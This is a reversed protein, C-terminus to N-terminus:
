QLPYGRQALNDRDPPSLNTVPWRLRCLSLYVPIDFSDFLMMFVEESVLGLLTVHFRSHKYKLCPQQSNQSTCCQQFVIQLYNALVKFLNLNKSSTVTKKIPSLELNESITSIM